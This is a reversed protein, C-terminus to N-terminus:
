WGYKDAAFEFFVTLLVRKSVGLSTGTGHAEFYETDKVDLGAAAYTSRILAEQAEGSPMTIGTTKGDQNAGSGRIVARITDGDALAQRLTKVVVAGLAEGRAYGNARADFSHSKGDPSLMHMSSLQSVFSPSLIMNVGTVLAQTSEGLRLSQCALHLAYLSSSCATDLTFSPGRLDFFWSIRNSLMARSTGAAANQPLQLPDGATILEYDNTMVGTYVATATGRLTGM